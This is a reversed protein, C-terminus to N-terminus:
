LTVCDASGSDTFTGGAVPVFEWDYSSAKLTLKLVGHTNNDRIESNTALGDFSSLDTGGTGVVFTRIGRGPEAVGDPNQPALREYFTLHLRSLALLLTLGGAGWLLQRLVLQGGVVQAQAQLTAISAALIGFVALVLWADIRHEM